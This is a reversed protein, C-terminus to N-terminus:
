VNILSFGHNPIDFIDVYVVSGNSKKIVPFSSGGWLKGDSDPKAIFVVYSDNYERCQTVKSGKPYKALEKSIVNKLNLM